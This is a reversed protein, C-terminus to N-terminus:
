PAAAKTYSSLYEKSPCQVRELLFLSTLNMLIPVLTKAYNSPNAYAKFCILGTENLETDLFFDQSGRTTVLFRHPGTPLVLEGYESNSLALYYKEGEGFYVSVGGSNFAPERYVLVSVTPQGPQVAPTSVKM